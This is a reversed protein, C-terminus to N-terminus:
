QVGPPPVQPFGYSTTAPGRGTANRRRYVREEACSQGGGHRGPREAESGRDAVMGRAAQEAVEEVLVAPAAPREPGHSGEQAEVKGAGQREVREAGQDRRGEDGHGGAPEQFKVGM